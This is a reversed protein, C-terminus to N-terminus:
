YGNLSKNAESLMAPNIVGENMQDPDPVIGEPTGNITDAKEKTTITDTMITDTMTTDTMITTEETMIDNGQTQDVVVDEKVLTKGTDIAKELLDEGIVRVIEVLRVMLNTGDPRQLFRKGSRKLKWTLRQKSLRCFLPYMYIYLDNM